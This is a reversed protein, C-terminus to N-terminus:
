MPIRAHKAVCTSAGALTLIPLLKEVLEQSTQRLPRGMRRGYFKETGADKHGQTNANNSNELTPSM